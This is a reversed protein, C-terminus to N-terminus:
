RRIPLRGCSGGLLVKVDSDDGADREEPPLDRAKNEAFEVIAGTTGTDNWSRLETM